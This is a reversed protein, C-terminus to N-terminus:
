AGHDSLGQETAQAACEVGGAAVEIRHMATAVAVAPETEM